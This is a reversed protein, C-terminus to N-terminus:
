LEPARSGGARVETPLLQQRFVENIPSVRWFREPKRERPNGVTKQGALPFAQVRSLYWLEALPQRVPLRALGCSNSRSTCSLLLAAAAHATLPLTCGDLKYTSMAAAAGTARSHKPGNALM